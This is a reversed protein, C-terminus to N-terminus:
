RSLERYLQKAKQWAFKKTHGGRILSDAKWDIWDRKQEKSSRNDFNWRGKSAGM